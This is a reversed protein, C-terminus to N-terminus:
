PGGDLGFLEAVHFLEVAPVDFTLGFLFTAVVMSVLAARRLTRPRVYRGAVVCATMDETEYPSFYLMDGWCPLSLGELKLWLSGDRGETRAVTGRTGAPILGHPTLFPKVFSLTDGASIAHGQEKPRIASVLQRETNVIFRSQMIKQRETENHHLSM